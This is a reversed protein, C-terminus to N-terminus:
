VDTVVIEIGIGILAATNREVGGSAGSEPRVASLATKFNKSVNVRVRAPVGPLALSIPPVRHQWQHAVDSEDDRIEGM